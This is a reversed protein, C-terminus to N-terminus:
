ENSVGRSYKSRPRAFAQDGGAVGRCSLVFDIADSIDSDTPHAADDLRNAISRLFHDRQPPPLLGAAQTVKDMQSDSLGHPPMVEFGEGRRVPVSHAM